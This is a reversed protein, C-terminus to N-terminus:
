KLPWTPVRYALQANQKDCLINENCLHYYPGFRFANKLILILLSLFLIQPGFHSNDSFTFVFIHNKSLIFLFLFIFPYQLYLQIQNPHFPFTHLFFHHFHLHFILNERTQNFLFPPLFITLHLSKGGPRMRKRQIPLFILSFIAM